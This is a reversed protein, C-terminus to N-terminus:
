EIKTLHLLGQQGAYDAASSYLYHEPQQVIGSTVPNNHIYDLRQDIMENTSLEIPHNDQQWFQYKTNNSNARGYEEFLRLMWEKRSEQINEMIAGTLKFSTFKKMDRMIDELLWSSNKSIILHLHSTMIIWAHLVLGKEKQCHRISDLVIDKYINRTFVDIWGVTAFSIFYLGNPDRFKYKSSM